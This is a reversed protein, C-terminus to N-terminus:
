VILRQVPYTALPPDMRPRYVTWTYHQWCFWRDDDVHRHGMRTCRMGDRTAAQCQMRVSYDTMVFM